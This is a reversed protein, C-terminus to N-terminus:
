VLSQQIAPHNNYQFCSPVVDDHDLRPAIEANVQRSQPFGVFVRDSSGTEQGLNSRLVEVIRPLFKVASGVQETTVM